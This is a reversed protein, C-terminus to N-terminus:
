DTVVAPPREGNGLLWRYAAAMEGAIHEWSLHAEAYARGRRGM